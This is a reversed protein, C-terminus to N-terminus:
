EYGRLIATRDSGDLNGSPIDVRAVHKKTKRNQNEVAKKTRHAIKVVSPLPEREYEPAIWVALNYALAAEYEAPMAYTTSLAAFSTLEKESYLTLSTVGDPVSYLRINALPYNDDYWLVRPIGTTSKQPISAYQDASYITLPYDTTGETVFASIIRRPRATNFDGGSGITYEGDGGTLSLTETTTNYVLNGEVSWTSLLNNLTALADAGETADLSSGTGLVSIKRLASEIIDQATSM